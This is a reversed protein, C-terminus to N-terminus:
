HCHLNRIHQYYILFYQMKADVTSLMASALRALWNGTLKNLDM